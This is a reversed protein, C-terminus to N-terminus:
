DASFFAEYELAEMKAAEIEKPTWAPLRRFRIKSFRTRGKKAADFYGIHWYFVAGPEVLPVDYDTLEEVSFVVEELPNDRNSQDELIATIEGNSFEKVTGLWKQKIIEKAEPLAVPRIQQAYLINSSAIQPAELKNSTSAEVSFGLFSSGKSALRISSPLATESEVGFTRM